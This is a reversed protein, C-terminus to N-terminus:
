LPQAPVLRGERRSELTIRLVPVQQLALRGSISDPNSPTQPDDNCICSGSEAPVIQCAIGRTVTYAEVTCRLFTYSGCCFVVM